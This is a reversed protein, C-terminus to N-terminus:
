PRPYKVATGLHVAAAGATLRVLRNLFAVCQEADELELWPAGKTKKLRVTLLADVAPLLDHGHALAHRVQLWEDLRAEVMTPTWVVSPKGRGGAHTFTWHSQPDFGASDMLRRTNRANPTAFDKIARRAPGVAADYRAIDIPAPGRPRATDLIATTMDEVAAQWAAVALVVIARNLSAEMPRRGRGPGGHDRHVEVINDCHKLAVHFQDVAQQLNM